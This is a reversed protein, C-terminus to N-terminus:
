PERPFPKSPDDPHCLVNKKRDSLAIYWQQPGGPKNSCRPAGVGTLATIGFAIRARALSRASNSWGDAAPPLALTQRPDGTVLDTTWWGGANSTKGQADYYRYIITGQNLRSIRTTQLLFGGGGRYGLVDDQEDPITKGDHKRLWEVVESKATKHSESRWNYAPCAKDLPANPLAQGREAVPVDAAAPILPKPGSGAAPATVRTGPDMGIQRAYSRYMPALVENPVPQDGFSPIQRWARIRGQEVWARLLAVRKVSPVSPVVLDWAGIRFLQDLEGHGTVQDLWRSAQGADVQVWPQHFISPAVLSTSWVVWTGHYDGSLRTLLHNWV